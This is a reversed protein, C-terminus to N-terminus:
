NRKLFQSGSTSTLEYRTRPLSNSLVRACDGANMLNTGLCTIILSSSTPGYRASGYRIARAFDEAASPDVGYRLGGRAILMTENGPDLSLGLNYYRLAAQYEGIREHCFGLLMALAIRASNVSPLKETDSRQLKDSATELFQISQMLIPQADVSQLERTSSVIISVAEALVVPDCSEASSVIERARELAVSPQSKRLTFLYMHMYDAVEPALQAAHRFFATATESDGAAEWIRGRLFSLVAPDAHKGWRRLLDLATDWDGSQSAQIAEM